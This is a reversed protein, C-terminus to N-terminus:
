FREFKRVKYANRIRLFLAQIYDMPRGLVLFFAVKFFSGFSEEVVKHILLSVALVITITLIYVFVKNEETAFRSIFM